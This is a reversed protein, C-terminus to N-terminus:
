DKSLRSKSNRKSCGIHWPSTIVMYCLLAVCGKHNALKPSHANTRRACRRLHMRVSLILRRIDPIGVLVCFDQTALV